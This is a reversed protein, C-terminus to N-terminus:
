ATRLFAAKQLLKINVRMGARKLNDLSKLTTELASVV